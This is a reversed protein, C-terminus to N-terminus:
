TKESDKKPRLVERMKKREKPVCFTAYSIAVAKTRDLNGKSHHLKFSHRDVAASILPELDLHMADRKWM